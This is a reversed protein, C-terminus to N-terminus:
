RTPEGVRRIYCCYPRALHVRYWYAMSGCGGDQRTETSPSVCAYLMEAKKCLLLMGEIYAPKKAGLKPQRSVYLMSLM